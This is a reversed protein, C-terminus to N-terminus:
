YVLYKECNTFNGIKFGCDQISLLFNVEQQPVGIKMPIYNARTFYDNLFHNSNYEESNENIEGNSKEKITRFPFVIMCLSYDLLIITSILLFNFNSM